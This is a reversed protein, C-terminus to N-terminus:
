YTGSFDNKLCLVKIFKCSSDCTLNWTLLLQNAITIYPVYYLMICYSTTHNIRYDLFPSCSGRKTTSYDYIYFQFLITYFFCIPFKFFLFTPFFYRICFYNMKFHSITFLTMSNYLFNFLFDYFNYFLIYLRLKNSM